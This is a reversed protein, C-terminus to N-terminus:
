RKGRVRLALEKITAQLGVRKLANNVKDAVRYRINESLLQQARVHVLYSVDSGGHVPVPEPASHGNREATLRALEARLRAAEAQHLASEGLMVRLSRSWDAALRPHRNIVYARMPVDRGVSEQRFMSDPRVRYHFLFEPLILGRHGREALACWLDWDEYSTPWRDYGGADLVADKRLLAGSCGGTNM